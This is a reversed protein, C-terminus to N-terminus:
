VHVFRLSHRHNDDFCYYLFSLRFVIRFLLFIYSFMAFVSYVMASCCCFIPTLLLSHTNTRIHRFSSKLVPFSQEHMCASLFLSVRVRVNWFIIIMMIAIAIDLLHCHSYEFAASVSETFHFKELYKHCM